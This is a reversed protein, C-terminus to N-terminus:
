RPPELRWRPGTEDAGVPRSGGPLQGPTSYVPNDEIVCGSPAITRERSGAGSGIVIGERCGAIRNGTVVAGTVPAYGALAAHSQGNMLSIAARLGTGALAELTNGTVRHGAGIVRIGGSGAVGGGLFFNDAVLADDGERLTLTGACHYFTNHRYVNHGSKNSIIEIEGDCREFYNDEVTTYADTRSWTSTGVRITEGGNKGLDPRPGFHNHDIRHRAARGDLWVVLTTGENTKGELLCHDVRNHCGYLSVWHNEITDPSNYDLIACDTLRCDTASDRRSGLSIVDRIGSAGHSFVLGRVSLWAGTVLLTSNGELIVKGPTEAAMVIPKGPLGQGRFRLQQDRWVGNAMVLTDGPALSGLRETIEAGDHVLWKRGPGPLPGPAFSKQPAPFAAVLGIFLWLFRM